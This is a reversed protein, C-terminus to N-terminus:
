PATVAEAARAFEAQEDWDTYCENEPWRFRSGPIGCPHKLPHVYDATLKMRHLHDDCCEMMAVIREALGDLVFGHWAADQGCLPESPAGSYGCVYVAWEPLPEGLLPLKRV